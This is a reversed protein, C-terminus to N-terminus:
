ELRYARVATDHFVDSIDDSSLDRTVRVFANGMVVYQCASRNVPYNGKVM